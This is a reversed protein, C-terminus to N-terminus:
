KRGLILDLAWCGRVHTGEGRVHELITSDECGADELADGLVPMLDFTGEEDITEALGVVAGGNWALWDPAVEVPRFPLPGFLDRLIDARAFNTRATRSSYHRLHGRHLDPNAANRALWAAKKAAECGKMWRRMARRSGVYDSFYASTMGAAQFAPAMASASALGDAFREAVEVAVRSEEDDLLKWAKRASACAFLRLKRDDFRDGLQEVMRMLETATQWESETM